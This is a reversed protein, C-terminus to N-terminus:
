AISLGNHTVIVDTTNVVRMGRAKMEEIFDEGNKEFGTVPSTTDRLLVLKKINENGFNDALQRVTAAVCHSLAQGTLFILDAQEFREIMPRSLKTTPDAAYPVEAAFAGYHETYPNHGKTMYNVRAIYRNEWDLLASCVPQVVNHGPTGILCHPPWIILPYRGADELAKTYDLAYQVQKSDIPKMVGNLVDEHKIQTFPAPQKGNADRWFLPHSIDYQQHSDLTVTISNLQNGAKEIFAALNLADQWSGDVPLAPAIRSISGNDKNVSIAQHNEPVNHFDYQPDIIILQNNQKM